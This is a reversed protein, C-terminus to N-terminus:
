VWYILADILFCRKYHYLEVVIKNLIPILEANIGSSLCKAQLAHILRSLSSRHHHSSPECGESQFCDSTM